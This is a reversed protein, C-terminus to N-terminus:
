KEGKKYPRPLYHWAIADEVVDDEDDIFVTGNWYALFPYFVNESQVYYVREDYENSLEPLHEEVPIWGDDDSLHKKIIEIALDLGKDQYALIAFQPPMIGCGIIGSKQKEIEQLIKELTRM